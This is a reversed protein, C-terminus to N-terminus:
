LLMLCFLARVFCCFFFTVGWFAANTAFEPKSAFVFFPRCPYFAAVAASAASLAVVNSFPLMKKNLFALSGAGSSCAGGAQGRVTQACCNTSCRQRVSRRGYLRVTAPRSGPRAYRACKVNLLLWKSMPDRAVFRAIRGRAEDLGSRCRTGPIFLYPCHTRAGRTGTARSPRLSANVQGSDCNVRASRHLGRSCLPVKTPEHECSGRSRSGPFEAEQRPPSSRGATVKGRPSGPRGRHGSHSSLTRYIGTSRLRPM